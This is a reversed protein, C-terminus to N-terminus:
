LMHDTNEVRNACLSLSPNNTLGRKMGNVDSFPKDYLVFYIFMKIKHIIKVNWM